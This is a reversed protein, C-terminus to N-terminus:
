SVEIGRRPEAHPEARSQAHLEGHPEGRPEAPRAGRSKARYMALDAARMLEAASLNARWYAIGVSAGVVFRGAPLEYPRTLAAHLAVAVEQATRGEPGSEVLAAFEDGGLRAVTDGSRVADRLRAGAQALLADGAAHGAQDNVAKFRDLDLFCVAIPYAEAPRRDLARELREAFLARNPLGTLSDHYASYALQRQLAVRDSVDRCTFVLGGRHQTLTCESHRWLSAGAAAPLPMAARIRCELVESVTSMALFREVAAVVADRDEPHILRYLCTGSLEPPEYGFVPGVAPSIYGLRGDPDVTMIVDGAGQVLSRFHEERIALERTLAQNELLTIAQRTVLAVLVTGGATLLAPEVRHDGTLDDTMIGALCVTGAFYPFLLKPVAPARRSVAILSRGLRTLRGTRACPGSCGVGPRRRMWPAVALLLYGLFWGADLLEGSTYGARVSPLTWIADSLVIVSYGAVLTAMSSGDRGGRSRVALVLSVLLIDLVPYALALALKVPSDQDSTADRALAVTWGASFLAGAIMAGDLLLKVWALPPGVGRHHVLTGAMAFPAFFLFVWDALSPYPPPERLVLEYWGWVANGFGAFLASGAFLFWSLRTRGAGTLARAVCSFGAATAVASLGFDGMLDALSHGSGPGPTRSAGWHLVSGATYAAACAPVAWLAFVHRWGPRDGRGRDPRYRPVGM